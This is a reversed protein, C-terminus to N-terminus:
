PARSLNTKWEYYFDKFVQPDQYWVVMMQEGFTIIKYITGSERDMWVRSELNDYTRDYYKVRSPLETKPMLVLSIAARREGHENEPLYIIRTVDFIGSHTSKRQEDYRMYYVGSSLTGAQYDEGYYEAILHKPAGIQAGVPAWILLCVHLLFLRQIM